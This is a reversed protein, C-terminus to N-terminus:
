SWLACALAGALLVIVCSFVGVLQLMIPLRRKIGAKSM